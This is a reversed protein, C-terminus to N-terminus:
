IRGMYPSWTDQPISQKMQSARGADSMGKLSSILSMAGGVKSGVSTKNTDWGRQTASKQLQGLNQNSSGMQGMGLRQMMGQDKTANSMSPLAEQNGFLNRLQAEIDQGGSPTTFKNSLSKAEGMLNKFASNYDTEGTQGPTGRSLFKELNMRTMTDVDGTSTELKPAASDGMKSFAEIDMKGQYPSYSDKINMKSTSIPLLLTSWDPMEIERM